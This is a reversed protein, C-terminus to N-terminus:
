SDDNEGTDADLDELDFDSHPNSELSKMDVSSLGVSKVEDDPNM